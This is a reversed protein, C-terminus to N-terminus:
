PLGEIFKPAEERWKKIVASGGPIWSTLLNFCPIFRGSVDDFHANRVNPIYAHADRNRIDKRLYDYADLLRRQQGADANVAACLRRLGNKPSPQKELLAGLPGYHGDPQRIEIDNLLCAGKVLFEAGASFNIWCILRGFIPDVHEKWGSEFSDHSTASVNGSVKDWRVLRSFALVSLAAIVQLQGDIKPERMKKEGQM